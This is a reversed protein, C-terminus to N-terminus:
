YAAARRTRSSRPVCTLSCRSPSRRPRAVGRAPERAAGPRRAPDVRAVRGARHRARRRRAACQRRRRLRHRSALGRRRRRAHARPRLRSADRGRRDVDAPDRGSRAGRVGKAWEAARRPTATTGARSRVDGETADIAVVVAQSGLREALETVLSPRELAASNVAVKDAGARSSNRPTRWRACAAAWPSRSRSGNRSAGCSSWSRGASSSRRPSTSSCSSMRARMPTPGVWSWRTASTASRRRLQRGQRRPRGLRRPVPDSSPSACRSWFARAAAGSKEPHFQVGTFSGSQAVAVIGGVDGDCVADRGRVLARLLVCEGVPEVEAWGIRPVRGERLRVARGPLHRARRRRRGGRDRRARAPPRPLHRARGTPRSAHACRRTSGAPACAAMAACGLRCRAPRRPRRERRRGNFRAGLREFALAVSRVNGAGYECIAVNVAVRQDVPDRRKRHAGRNRLARGVAKFAAEAVHHEDRGTAEVHIALRGAQALSSLVHSALGPDRELTLEAAPRGGLDVAARALADDM